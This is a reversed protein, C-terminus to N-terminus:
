ASQLKGATFGRSDMIRQLTNRSWPAVARVIIGVRPFSGNNGIIGPFKRQRNSSTAHDRGPLHSTTNTVGRRIAPSTPVSGRNRLTFRFTIRIGQSQTGGRNRSVTPLEGPLGAQPSRSFFESICNCEHLVIAYYVAYTNRGAPNRSGAVTGTLPHRPSGRLVEEHVNALKGPKSSRPVRM